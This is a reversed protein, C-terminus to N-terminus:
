YLFKLLNNMCNNKISQNEFCLRSNQFYSIIASYFPSSKTRVLITHENHDNANITFIIPFNPQYQSSIFM